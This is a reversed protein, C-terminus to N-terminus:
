KGKGTICKRAADNIVAPQPQQGVATDYYHTATVTEGTPNLVVTVTEFVGDKMRTLQYTVGSADPAPLAKVRTLDDECFIATNFGEVGTAPVIRETVPLPIGVEAPARSYLMATWAMAVLLAFVVVGRPGWSKMHQAISKM